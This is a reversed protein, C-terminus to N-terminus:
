TFVPPVLGTGSIIGISKSQRTLQAAYGWLQIRVSLTASLVEPLVRVRVASEWLLTENSNIVLVIDQNTSVNTPLNSDLYM